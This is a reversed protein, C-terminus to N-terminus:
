LQEQNLLFTLFEDKTFIINCIKIFDAKSYGCVKLTKDNIDRVHMQKSGLEFYVVCSEKKNVFTLKVSPSFHHYADVEGAHIESTAFVYKLAGVQEPTLKKTKEIKITDASVNIREAKVVKANLIINTLSDSLESRMLSDIAAYPNEPVELNKRRNTTIVFLLIVVSVFFLVTISIIKREM